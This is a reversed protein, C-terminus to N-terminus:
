AAVVMSSELWAAFRDGDVDPVQRRPLAWPDPRASAADVALFAGRYGAEAALRSTDPGLDGGGGFPYAFLDVRRGAATELATRGARIELRQMAPTLGAMWPHTLTHGGLEILPHDALEDLQATTLPRDDAAAQPGAGAWRGIADLARQREAHLLPRLWAWLERYLAARGFLGDQWARWSTDPPLSDVDALQSEFVWGDLVIRCQDPLRVPEFLLRALEDWWFGRPEGIYGSATFLVAPTDYRELVPLGATYNDAYGDDFTVLVTGDTADRAVADMFSTATVPHWEQGLVRLHEEFNRPSVCLGWPDPRTESIRHYLLGFPRVPGTRERRRQIRRAGALQGNQDARLPEGPAADPGYYASWFQRGAEYAERRARDGGISAQQRALVRLASGRMLGSDRSLSDRQWRYEAVVSEHAAVPMRCAIRLLLDYDECSGLSRDFGGVAQLAVRQYMVAAHMGVVNRRLLAAYADAEFEVAPALRPGTPELVLHRGAVLAAEPHAAFATLGDAVANPLLRDDADLFVVYAGTTQSLGTNRAASLGANEQRVVRVGPYRAAVESANDPSGDDVVVAELHPYTQRVVSEIAEPLYRAQAYCPIVVSVRPAHVSGLDEGSSREVVVRAFPVRQQDALVVRLAFEFRRVGALEITDHFGAQDAEAVDPFAPVLDPRARGLPVRRVLRGEYEVEVAVAPVERGLAWGSLVLSAGDSRDGVRPRDLARGRLRADVEATEIELTEIVSM